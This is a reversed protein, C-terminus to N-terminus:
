GGCIGVRQNVWKVRGEKFNEEGVFDLVVGDKILGSVLLKLLLVDGNVYPMIYRDALKWVPNDWAVVRTYLASLDITKKAHPKRLDQYSEFADELAKSDVNKSDRLLIGRLANTLAAASQVGSNFGLGANPTMKHVADGILVIRGNAGHWKDVLGEELHAMHSWIMADWADKFKYTATVHIEAYQAVLEEKVDDTFHHRETTAKALRHYIFFFARTHHRSFQLTYKDGHTECLIGHEFDPLLECSGFLGVYSTTMPSPPPTPLQSNMLQRITSHVGDAGIIISAEHITGDESTVKVGHSNTEISKIHKNFHLRTEDPLHDVLM